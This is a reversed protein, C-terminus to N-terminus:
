EGQKADIAGKPVLVLDVVGENELKVLPMGKVPSLKSLKGAEEEEDQAEEHPDVEAVVSNLRHVDIIRHNQHEHGDDDDKEWSWDQPMPTPSPKNIRM